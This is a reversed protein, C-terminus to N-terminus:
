RVKQNIVWALLQSLNGALHHTAQKKLYSFELWYAVHKGSGMHIVM